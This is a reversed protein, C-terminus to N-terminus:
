ADARELDVRWCARTCRRLLPRAGGRAHRRPSPATTFPLPCVECVVVTAIMPGDYTEIREGTQPVRSRCEVPEVPRGISTMLRIM